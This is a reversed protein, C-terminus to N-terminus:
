NRLNAAPQRVAPAQSLRARASALRQQRKQWDRRVKRKWFFQILTYAMIGLLIGCVISGFYLPVGIEMLKTSLWDVSLEFNVEVAPRNLLFAGVRYTLYFLFPMTIPNTIWVLTVAIPLNCNFWVALAAALLMQFPMPIFAVFIGILFAKAVAHRNLHWLNPEHLIEGLFRLSKHEKFTQPSPMFRRIMKKPM